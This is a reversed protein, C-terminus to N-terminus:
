IYYGVEQKLARAPKGSLVKGVAGCIAAMVILVDTHDV